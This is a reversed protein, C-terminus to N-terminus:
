LTPLVRQRDGFLKQPLKVKQESDQEWDQFGVLNLEGGTTAPIKEAM